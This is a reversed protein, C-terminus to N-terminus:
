GLVKSLCLLQGHLSVCLERREHPETPAPVSAVACPAQTTASVSGVLSRPKLERAPGEAGVVATQESQDSRSPNPRPPSTAHRLDAAM